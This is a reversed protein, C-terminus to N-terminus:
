IPQLRKDAGEDGGDEQDDDAEEKGCEAYGVEGGCTVVDELM